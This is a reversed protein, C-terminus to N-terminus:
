YKDGLSFPCYRRGKSFCGLTKPGNKSGDRLKASCQLHVEAFADRLIAIMCGLTSPTNKSGDRLKASCQLHVEAFADRLIAIM